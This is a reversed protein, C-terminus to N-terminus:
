GARNDFAIPREWIVLVVCGTPSVVAHSSGPPNIVLTGAAHTGRADVQTGHLVYLHEYGQHVHRPISAGPEYRLLAASPGAEGAGYLRHIRVGDRYPMWEFGPALVRTALESIVLTDKM